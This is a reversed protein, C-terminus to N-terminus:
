DNRRPWSGLLSFSEDATADSAAAHCPLPSRMPMPFPPRTTGNPEFTFSAVVPSDILARLIRENALRCVSPPSFSCSSHFHFALRCTPTTLQHHLHALCVCAFCARGLLSLKAGARQGDPAARGAAEAGGGTSEVGSMLGGGTWLKLGEFGGPPDEINRLRFERTGSQM